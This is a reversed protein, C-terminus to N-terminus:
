RRLFAEQIRRLKARVRLNREERAGPENYLIFDPHRHVGPRGAARVTADRVATLQAVTLPLVHEDPQFRAGLPYDRGPRRTMEIHCGLVHTVPHTGAFAVLRELTDRFAPYDAIYLRGPYVTDGTLLIGTWPDYVTVAAEHHGPSGLVELVRGGLDFLVSGTLVGPFGFFRRVAEDGHPVVTTAPRGAFQADAAVHDGHGHSHAVVLEYGERPHEALWADVLADVTARLPFLAPDATAGTDLLLARDAGFLLYLFPAEYDLRKSQRLIVTREDYFHIQIPPEGRRGHIWSVDLPGTATETM